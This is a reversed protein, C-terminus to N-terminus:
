AHAPPIFLIEAAVLDLLAQWIASAPLASMSAVVEVLDRAPIPRHCERALVAHAGRLRQPPMMRLRVAIEEHVEAEARRRVSRLLTAQPNWAVVRGPEVSATRLRAQPHCVLFSLQPRDFLRELIAYRERPPLLTLREAVEGEGLLRHPSWERPELWRMWRLGAAEVLAFVETVSMPLSQPHLYRDVLETDEVREAGAWPGATVPSDAASLQTLLGRVLEREEAQWGSIGLMDLAEALRSVPQRGYRGYVRISMMGDPTLVEALNRLGSLPESLHHLVGSAYILDFSAGYEERLELLQKRNMLNVVQLDINNLGRQQAEAGLQALAVRSLDIGVIHAEPYLEALPILGAGTGCGADLIHLPREPHERHLYSLLLDPFGDARPRPPLGPYPFMAYLQQVSRTIDDM